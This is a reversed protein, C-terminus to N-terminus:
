HSRRYERFLEQVRHPSEVTKPEWLFVAEPALLRWRCEDQLSAPHETWVGPLNRQHFYAVRDLPVAALLADSTLGARHMNEFDIVLKAPASLLLETLTPLSSEIGAHVEICATM